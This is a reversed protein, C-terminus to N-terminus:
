HFLEGICKTKSIRLHQRTYCELVARFATAVILLYEIISNLSNLSHRRAIAGKVIRPIM